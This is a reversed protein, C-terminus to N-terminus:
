WHLARWTAVVAVGAAELHQPVAVPAPARAREVVRRQQEGLVHEEVRDLAEADTTSSMSLGDLGRCVAVSVEGAISLGCSDSSSVPLAPDESRHEGVRAGVGPM